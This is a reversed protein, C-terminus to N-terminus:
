CARAAALMAFRLIRKREILPLQRLDRGNLYLLDFAYFYPEGRRYFLQNFQPRGDQDLCIVEGDLIMQYPLQALSSCLSRFRTYVHANRSVLQCSGSKLIASRASATM